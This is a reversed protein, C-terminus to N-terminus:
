MMLRDAGVGAGGVERGSLGQIQQRQASAKALAVGRPALATDRLMWGKQARRLQVHQPHTLEELWRSGRPRM